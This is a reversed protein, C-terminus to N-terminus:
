HTSGGLWGSIQRQAVNQAIAALHIAVFAIAARVGLGSVSLNNTRTLM